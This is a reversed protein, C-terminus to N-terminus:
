RGRARRRRWPRARRWRRPPERGPRRPRWWRHRGRLLEGPNGRPDRRRERRPKRASPVGRRARRRRRRSWLPRAWRRPPPARGRTQRSHSAGSGSGVRERYKGGVCKAPTSLRRPLDRARRSTKAPPSVLRAFIYRTRYERSPSTTMPTRESRVRRRLGPVVGWSEGGTDDGPYGGGVVLDFFQNKWGRGREAFRLSADVVGGEAVKELSTLPLLSVVFVATQHAHERALVGLVAAPDVEGLHLLERHLVELGDVVEPREVGVALETEGHLALDPDALLALPRLEELLDVPDLALVVRVALPGLLEDPLLLRLLTVHGEGVREPTSLEEVCQQLVGRECGRGLGLVRRVLCGFGHLLHAIVELLSHAAAHGTELAELLGRPHLLPRPACSYCMPYGPFPRRTASWPRNSNM